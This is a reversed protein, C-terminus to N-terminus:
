LQPRSLYNAARTGYGGTPVVRARNLFGTFLVRYQQGTGDQYRSVLASEATNWYWKQNLGHHCGRVTLQLDPEVTLCRDPAVRSRYRELGDLGWLQNRTGTCSYTIVPNGDSSTGGLVDLCDSNADLSQLLVHPEPEFFPHGWDVTVQTGVSITTWSRAVTSYVSVPFSPVVKGAMAMVEASSSLHFHTVGTRAPSASYIAAFSPVFNKYSIPSFAEGRLVHYGDWYAAYFFCATGFERRVLWDCNYADYKRDWVWQAVRPQTNTNNDVAYESRTIRIARSNTFSSQASMNGGVKPGQSGIEANGSMAVGVTLSSTETVEQQPNLQAPKHGMLHVQPDASADVTFTYKNAIPGTWDDRHAWSEFWTHEQTLRDALHWGGGGSGADISIRVYKADESIHGGAAGAVSRILDVTYSLDVNGRGACADVVHGNFSFGNLGKHVWCSFNTRHANVRYTYIPQYPEGAGNLAASQSRLPPRSLVEHTRTALAQAQLQTTVADADAAQFQSYEVGQKGHSLLLVPGQVGLGGIAASLRQMVSPDTLTTGDILVDRGSAFVARLRAEDGAKLDAANVYLIDGALGQALLETAFPTRVGYEVLEPTARPAEHEEADPGLCGGLALAMTLAPAVPMFRSTWQKQQM